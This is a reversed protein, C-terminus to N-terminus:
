LTEEEHKGITTNKFSEDLGLIQKPDVGLYIWLKALTSFSPLSKGSEMKAWAPQSLGLIRGMESMNKENQYRLKKLFEAVEVNKM